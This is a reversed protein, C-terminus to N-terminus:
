ITDNKPSYKATSNEKKFERPSIKYYKKFANSLNFANCFGTREAIVELTEEEYLMERALNLRLEMYRKIISKQTELRYRHSLSSQSVHLQRAIDQLQINEGLHAKLYQDVKPYLLNKDDSTFRFIGDEAPKFKELLSLIEFFKSQIMSFGKEADKRVIDAMEELIDALKLNSDIGRCFGSKALEATITNEGGRFIIYASSHNCPNPYKESYVTGPPYIHFENKERQLWGSDLEPLNFLSDNCLFSYDLVWYDHQFTGGSTQKFSHNCSFRLVAPSIEPASEWSHADFQKENHM